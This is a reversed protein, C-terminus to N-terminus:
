RRPTERLAGIIGIVLLALVLVALVGAVTVGHRAFDLATLGGLLAIFMLVITLVAARL